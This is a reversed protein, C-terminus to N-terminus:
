PLGSERLLSSQKEMGSRKTELFSSRGTDRRSNRRARRSKNEIRFVFRITEKEQGSSTTSCQSSSSGTQSNRMNSTGKACIMRSRKFFKCHRFDQSINWEFEIAEGDIRMLEKYFPSMKFEEVQGEWRTIADRQALMKVLCLVSDSYVRVNAKTWQIVQDDSLTSRTRSPSTGEWDYACESDRWFTESILKQTINFLDQIEDFNTNKHVELNQLYDPGLHIAAKMWQSMLMRWILVNTNISGNCIKCSISFRRRTNIIQSGWTIFSRRQTWRGCWNGPARRARLKLGTKKNGPTQMKLTKKDGYKLINPHIKTQTACWNGSALLVAKNKKSMRRISPIAWITRLTRRRVWRTTCWWIWPDRSRWRRMWQSQNQWRHVKVPLRKKDERQCPVGSGSRILFFIISIAALTCRSIWMTSCVFSSLEVRWAHFERQDVHWYTPQQHWCMQNPDKTGLQNQRLVCTDNNSKTRQHDDQDCSRWWWFHVVSVRRSSFTNTLVHDMNSLQDVDRNSREGDKNGPVLSTPTTTKTKHSPHNEQVAGNKKSSTWTTKKHQKNFAVGWDGRGLHRSCTTWGDMRLGADLTITTSETSSHSVSVNTEQVDLQHLCINPKWLNMLSGGSTSKQFRLIKLLTQTKSYVWDVSSLRTAWMVINDTTMQTIFTLILRALRRDCAHTWKTVSRALKNVFWLIDPRGNRALYLCKLVIQSFVKSLKGVSELEEKKFQQDDLRDDLCLSSVNYPQEVKKNALECYREVCKRAHGEMDYVVRSDKRSTNAVVTIKRNSWRFYTIWVDRYIGWFYNWETQMWTSYMGFICPWSIRHTWWSWRKWWKGCPLWTRSREVWKSTKWTYRYSYNRKKSSCDSM